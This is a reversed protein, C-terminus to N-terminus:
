TLQQHLLNDLFPMDLHLTRNWVKDQRDECLFLGNTTMFLMWNRAYQQSMQM